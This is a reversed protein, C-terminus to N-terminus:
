PGLSIGGDVAIYQGQVMGFEPRALQEVVAAVDEFEVGRGSPNAAAARALRAQYSDPFMARFAQTDLAGPAVINARIGKPALEVALHRVVHDALAKSIGLPGYDPLVVRGGRSSVMFVTSGRGLLPLAERVVDILALGNVKVAREIEAPDTGLLPGRVAAAACHVIQDLRDTQERVAAIMRCVGELASVDAKILHPAAGRKGVMAAAEAAAEDDRHYNIFVQNGATAFRSAIARGIGTSGGTILIAV